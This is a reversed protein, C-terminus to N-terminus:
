CIEVASYLCYFVLLIKVTTDQIRKGDRFDQSKTSFTFDYTRGRLNM